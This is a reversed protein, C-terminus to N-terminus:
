KPPELPPDTVRRGGAVSKSALERADELSRLIQQRHFREMLADLIITGTAILLVIRSIEIASRLQPDVPHPPPPPLFVASVGSVSFLVAMALRFVGRMFNSRALLALPENTIGTLRLAVKYAVVDKQLDFLSWTLTVVAGLAALACAMEM